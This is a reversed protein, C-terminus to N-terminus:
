CHMLLTASYPSQKPVETICHKSLLSYMYKRITNMICPLSFMALLALLKVALSPVFGRTM